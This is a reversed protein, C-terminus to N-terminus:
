TPPLPQPGAACKGIGGVAAEALAVSWYFIQYKISSKANYLTTNSFYKLKLDFLACQLEDALRLGELCCQWSEPLRGRLHCVKYKAYFNERPERLPM